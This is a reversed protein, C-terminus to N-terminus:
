EELSLSKKAAEVFGKLVAVDQGEDEGGMSREIRQYLRSLGEFVGGEGDGVFGAIESMEGVWRYAKPLMPPVTRTMRELIASQSACLERMLAEATAPSSAYAATMVKTSGADGSLLNSVFRTDNDYVVGHDREYHGTIIAIEVMIENLFSSHSRVAYSMKLASADGVGVIDGRLPTIKLGYVSLSLFDQLFVEDKRDVSAYFTPDYANTPPGGIICADVFRFHLSGSFLAAIRKVTAPNVANCDAFIIPQRIRAEKSADLIAQALAFAESPPLISLVYSAQDVIDIFSTDKMGALYARRCTAESRGELNTLVTCGSDVLKRAVASGMAGAGIVAITLM